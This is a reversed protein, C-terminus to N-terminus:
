KEKRPADGHVVAGAAVARRISPNPRRGGVGHGTGIVRPKPKGGHQYIRGVGGNWNYVNGGKTVFAMAARAPLKRMPAGCCEPAPASISRIDEQERECTECFDVYIPM